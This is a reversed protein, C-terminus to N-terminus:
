GLGKENTSKSRSATGPGSVNYTASSRAASTAPTGVPPMWFHVREPALQVSTAVYLTLAVGMPNRPSAPITVPALTVSMAVVASAVALRRTVNTSLPPAVAGLVTM